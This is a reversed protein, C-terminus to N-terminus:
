TLRTRRFASLDATKALTTSEAPAGPLGIGLVHLPVHTIGDIGLRSTLDTEHYAALPFSGLGLATATLTFTQGLHGANLLCVRYSRATGHHDLQRALVATLIVLASAQGTHPQGACLATVEDQTCGATLLELSQEVGNYHYWGPEVGTVNLVALYAELEQRAGASPSTRRYLAGRPGADRFDVPAFVTRLLAAFRDLPMPRPDFTYHTRRQYLASGFPIGLDVPIRPLLVRDADPYATFLSTKPGTENGTDGQTHPDIRAPPVYDTTYHLFSAQPAWPDWHEAIASDRDAQPEGEAVLVGTEYLLEVSAGFALSGHSPVQRKASDVDTWDDFLSLVEACRAPLPIPGGGPYPHATLENQRNYYIM